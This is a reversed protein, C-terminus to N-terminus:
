TAPDLRTELKSRVISSVKAAWAKANGYHTEEAVFGPDYRVDESLDQLDRYAVRADKLEPSEKLARTRNEHKDSWFRDIKTRMYGEVLHVCAYFRFVIEWDGDAELIKASRDALTELRLFRQYYALPDAV